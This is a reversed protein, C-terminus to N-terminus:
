AVKIKLLVPIGFGQWVQFAGEGAIWIQQRGDNSECLGVPFEAVVFVRAAQQLAGMLHRRIVGADQLDGLFEAGSSRMRCEANPMRCAARLHYGIPM